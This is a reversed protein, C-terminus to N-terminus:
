VPAGVILAVMLALTEPKSVEVFISQNAFRNICYRASRISTVIRNHNNRPAM